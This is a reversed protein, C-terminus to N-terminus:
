LPDGKIGKNKKADFRHSFHFADTSCVEVCRGCNTCDGSFIMPREKEMHDFDIVQHEPCVKVCDMCRDCKEPIFKVRLFSSRGLLGYFAGLPCIHGCWGNRVLFLDGLFIAAIVSLGTGFGFILERQVMGVPSIWEFAAVGTIASLPFALLMLGYRLSRPLRFHGGIKLRRRLWAALDTVINLPCIWSCFIRGGLFLYVLLIIGTGLLVDKNLLHASFFIQLAAYPDALPITRLLKSASLNGTLIGLHLHAGLWFLVILGIQVFRRAILFRYPRLRKFLMM